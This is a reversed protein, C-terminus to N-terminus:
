TYASRYKVAQTWFIVWDSFLKTPRKTIMIFKRQYSSLSFAWMGSKTDEYGTTYRREEQLNRQTYKIEQNEVLTCGGKFKNAQDTWLGIFM